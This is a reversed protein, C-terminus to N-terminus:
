CGARVSRCFGRELSRLEPPSLDSLAGVLERRSQLLSHAVPQLLPIIGDVPGCLWIELESM